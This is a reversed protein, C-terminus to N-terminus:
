YKLPFRDEFLYIAPILGLKRILPYIRYELNKMDENMGNLFDHRNARIILCLKPKILPDYDMELYYYAYPVYENLLPKIYNLIVIIGRNKKIFEYIDNDFDLFNYFDKLQSFEEEFLDLDNNLDRCKNIEDTFDFKDFDLRM